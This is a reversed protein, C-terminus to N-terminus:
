RAGLDDAHDHLHAKRGNAGRRIAQRLGARQSRGAQPTVAASRDVGAPSERIAGSARVVEGAKSSRAGGGIEAPPEFAADNDRSRASRSLRRGTGPPPPLPRAAPARSEWLSGASRAAAPPPPLGM